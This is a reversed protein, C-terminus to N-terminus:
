YLRIDELISFKSNVFHHGTFTKYPLNHYTDEFDGIVIDDFIKQENLLVTDNETSSSGVLFFM